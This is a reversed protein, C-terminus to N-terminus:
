RPKLKLVQKFSDLPDALDVIRRGTEAIYRKCWEPYVELSDRGANHVERRAWENSELRRRGPEGPLERKGKKGAQGWRRRVEKHVARVIMNEMRLALAEGESDYLPSERGQANPPYTGFEAGDACPTLELTCIPLDGRTVRYGVISGVEFREFTLLDHGLRRAVKDMATCWQAFTFRSGEM